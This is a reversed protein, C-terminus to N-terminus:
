VWGGEQDLASPFLEVLECYSAPTVVGGVGTGLVSSIEPRFTGAVSCNIMGELELYHRAANLGSPWVQTAAATTVIAAWPAAPGPNTSGGAGWSQYSLTFTATGAFGVSKTDGVGPTPQDLSLFMRLLYKTSAKLSVTPTPEFIPQAATQEILTNGSGRVYLIRIAAFDTAGDAVEPGIPSGFPGTTAAAIAHEVGSSDMYYMYGNTKAYVKGANALSAPATRVICRAVDFFLKTM